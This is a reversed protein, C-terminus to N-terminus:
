RGSLTVQRAMDCVAQRGYRKCLYLFVNGDGVEGIDISGNSKCLCRVQHEDGNTERFAVYAQIGEASPCEAIRRATIEVM